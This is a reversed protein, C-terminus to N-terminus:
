KQTLQRYTLRKGAVGNMIELFRDADNLKRNNFRFAQEDLYRFLHPADVSVYTGKITRKLLSWFNELGNTSVHGQAYAVAHDIVEHIYAEDLGRYAPLADTHVESGHQVNEAIEKHLTARQTDKIHKTKVEGGRELLGMVIAKGSAGRGKIKEERKVKHMNAAKGGIFTEDAEIEGSLKEFTGTRMMHRIRHLLFWATAQRVGLARAVECSSIGNKANMILWCAPLWTSLPLPSDEMVTGVKVTFQKKCNKCNCVYRPKSFKGVEQSGCRPCAVGFPWRVSVMFDHCTEPGSFYLIAQQLTEPFSTTRKM